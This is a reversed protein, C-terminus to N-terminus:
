GNDIVKIGWPNDRGIIKYKHGREKVKLEYRNGRNVGATSVHVWGGKRSSPYELIMQDFPLKMELIMNVMDSTSYDGNLHVFDCAAGRASSYMHQSFKSGGVRTNLTHCRYGSTIRIPGIRERLPQMIDRFLMTMVGYAETPVINDINHREATESYQIEEVTFNDTIKTM